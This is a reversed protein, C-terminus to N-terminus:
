GLKPAQMRVLRIGEPLAMLTDIWDAGAHRYYIQIGRVKGERLLAAGERLGVREPGAYAEAGHKLSVERVDADTELDTLLSQLTADDLIAQQVEPLEIEERTEEGM